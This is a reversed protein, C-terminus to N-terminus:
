GTGKMVAKLQSNSSKMRALSAFLRVREVLETPSFPKRLMGLMKRSEISLQDLLEAAHATVLICSPMKEGLKRELAIFFEIGDMDPMKWDICVVHFIEREVVRLAERASSCTRVGFHDSLVAEMSQLMALDDDVLLVRTTSTMGM